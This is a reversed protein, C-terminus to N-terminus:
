LHGIHASKNPNISTHEVIVKQNKEPSIHNLNEILYSLLFNKKFYFNVFGGGALKIDLFFDFTKRIKKIIKEGILFPKQETRKAIVFPITTSLDGFRRDPPISFQIDEPKLQFDKKLLDVLKASLDKQLYKM